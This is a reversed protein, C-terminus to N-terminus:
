CKRREGKRNEGDDAKNRRKNQNRGVTRGREEEEGIDEKKKEM